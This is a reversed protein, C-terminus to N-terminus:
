RKRGEVYRRFKVRANAIHSRVTAPSCNLHRAVEAAPLGEIDRLVLAARERESLLRLGDEIYQRKEGRLVAQEPSETPSPPVEISTELDEFVVRKKRRLFDLATNTAIRGLWNAAKQPDNLQDRRKLAKVFAEQTLDQADPVNGVIRYIVRFVRRMNAEILEADSAPATEAALTTPREAQMATQALYTAM